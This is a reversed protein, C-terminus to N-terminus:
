TGRAPKIEARGGCREMSNLQPKALTGGDSFASSTLTFTGAQAVSPALLLLLPLWPRM